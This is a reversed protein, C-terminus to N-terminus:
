RLSALSSRTARTSRRPQNDPVKEGNVYVHNPSLEDYIFYSNDIDEVIRAHVKSVSPESFVMHARNPNRGIYVTQQTLPRFEGANKGTKVLLGAQQTSHQTRNAIVTPDDNPDPVPRPVPAPVPKRLLKILAYVALVAALLAIFLVVVLVPQDDPLDRLQTWFGAPTPAPTPQPTPTPPRTIKITARVPESKGELGLEDRVIVRLSHQGEPLRSFDWIFSQQASRTAVSAGDVEYFVQEIARPYPDAWEVQAQVAQSRPEISAVDQDHSDAMRDFIVGDAPAAITVLPPKVPITISLPASRFEHGGVTVGLEIKQPGPQNIKSRYCYLYQRTQSKIAGYLPALSALGTYDAYAWSAGGETFTEEALRRLQLGPKESGIKVTLIKIGAQNARNIVDTVDQPSTQDVGDSFVLVFRALQGNDPADKIRAIAEVLMKFLPTDTNVTRLQSAGNHIYNYLKTWPQVVTFKDSGTPAILMVQDLHRDQEIWKNKKLILLEDLARVAEELGRAGSTSWVVSASTGPHM